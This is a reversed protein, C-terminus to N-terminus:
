TWNAKFHAGGSILPFFPTGTGAYFRSLWEYLQLRMDQVYVIVGELSIVALNLLVALIDGFVGASLVGAVLSGLLTTTILLVGLRIYSITNLFFEFPKALAQFLGRGLGKVASKLKHTTLYDRIPEGLVLVVLAAAIAPISIRATEAIPIDLGLLDNFVPTPGTSTLLVSPNLATGAVAFALPILFAYLVITPLRDLFADLYNGGREQNIFAIAYGSALHFTGIAIAVELLFPISFLTFRASIAPPLPLVQGLPSTFPVGFFSGRLLGFLATSFSLALVLRGWIRYTTRHMLFLGFALLALGHGVDAFMVGFFFPFVLALIPTPDVEGYRPLGRMLTLSEFASILRPNVLLTPVYAADKGKTGVPEVSVLYDGMSEKFGLHSSPVYGEFRLKGAASPYAFIRELDKFVMLSAEQIALLVETVGLKDKQDTFLALNKEITVLYGELVELLGGVDHAQFKEVERNKGEATKVGGEDLVESARSYIEHARSALLLVRIDQVMGERRLPHFETFRIIRALLVGVDSPQSEVIVRVLRAVAM